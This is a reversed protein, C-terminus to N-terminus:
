QGRTPITLYFWLTVYAAIVCVGMEYTLLRPFKERGVRLGISAVKYSFMWSMLQIFLTSGYLAYTVENRTNPKISALVGWTVIPLVVARFPVYTFAFVMTALDYWPKLTGVNARHHRKLFDWASIVVNSFEIVFIYMRTQHIDVIRATMCCGVFLAIAHHLIFAAQNKFDVVVILVTDVAFYALTLGFGWDM